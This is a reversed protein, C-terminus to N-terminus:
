DDNKTLADLSITLLKVFIYLAGIIVVSIFGYGLLNLLVEMIM